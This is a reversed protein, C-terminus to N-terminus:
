KLYFNRIDRRWGPYPLGTRLKQQATGKLFRADGKRPEAPAGRSLEGFDEGEPILVGVRNWGM